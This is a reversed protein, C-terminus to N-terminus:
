LISNKKSFYPTVTRRIDEFDGPIPVRGFIDQPRHVDDQLMHLLCIVRGVVGPIIHQSGEAATM